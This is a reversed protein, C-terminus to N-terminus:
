RKVQDMKNAKKIEEFLGIVKDRVVRKQNKDFSKYVGKIKNYIEVAQEIQNYKLNNQSDDLLSYLYHIDMQKSLGVLEKYLVKRCSEPLERYILNIEGYAFHADKLQNNRLKIYALDVLEKVKSVNKRSQVKDKLSKVMSVDVALLEKQYFM